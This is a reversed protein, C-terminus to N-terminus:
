ILLALAISSAIAMLMGTAQHHRIIERNVVLGLLVAIAPYSETIATALSIPLSVMAIAFLAWGATDFVSESLVIKRNHRADSVMGRIGRKSLLYLFCAAAIITWASWITLLPSTDRAITGTMYNLAGMGLATAVALIAGRELFHRSKFNARSFSVLFIGLMIFGSFVAQVLTIQEQLLVIAFLFTAPLELVLIPEVVSIKGVKLSQFNIVGVIFTLLGLLALSFMVNSASFVLPIEHVIFPLLAVSGFAGIFFLSEMDGIKRTSKQIFFDGFGWCLAAGFAALVGLELVM